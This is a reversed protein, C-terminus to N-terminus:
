RREMWRKKLRQAALMNQLLHGYEHTISYVSDKGEAHPMHHTKGAYDKEHSQKNTNVLKEKSNYFETSFRLTQKVPNTPNIEVAAIYSAKNAAM